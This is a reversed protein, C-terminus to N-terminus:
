KSQEKSELKRVLELLDEPVPEQAISDYMARMRQGILQAAFGPLQPVPAHEADLEPQREPEPCDGDTRKCDEPTELRHQM